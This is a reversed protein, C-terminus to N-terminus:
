KQLGVDFYIGGIAINPNLGFASRFPDHEYSTQLAAGLTFNKPNVINAHVNASGRYGIHDKDTASMPTTTSGTEALIIPDAKVLGCTVILCFTALAACSFPKM